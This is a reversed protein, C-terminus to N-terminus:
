SDAVNCVSFSIKLRMCVIQMGEMKVSKCIQFFETQTRVTMMFAYHEMMVLRVSSTDHIPLIQFDFSQKLTLTKLSSIKIIIRNLKINADLTQVIQM